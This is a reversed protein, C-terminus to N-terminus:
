GDRKSKEVVSMAALSVETKERPIEIFMRFLIYLLLGVTEWAGDSFPIDESASFVAVAYMGCATALMTSGFFEIRLSLIAGTTYASILITLSGAVQLISYGIDLFNPTQTAVSAPVKWTIIWTILQILGSVFTAVLIFRYLPFSGSEIARGVSRNVEAFRKRLSFM